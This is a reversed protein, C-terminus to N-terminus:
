RIQEQLLTLIRQATESNDREGQENRIVVRTSEGETLLTVQYQQEKDINKDNDRWFALKALLGEDEVGEMPDNYRVYYVGGSRDRDEVAFGVRDLAIGTLRWARPFEENVTLWVQDGSKILRSRQAPAAGKAALARSATQDEVGLYVMLRRLMAAELGHDTERPNWVTREVDGQGDQIITEQMGRQTLYLETTAPEIGPEIRIRFQDRTSASYLGDFLGRFADTIFDNKIDARNEIWDTVMIGVTPDQEELLIGNEQWFEVVRFWVDEPEGQILLWRQEGDRKVEINEVTPLVEGGGGPGTRGRESTELTSLTTGGEPRTGPIVLEDRISSSTLDPPIELDREVGRSKKYEVKRDPLMGDDGRMSGCGVIMALLAYSVVAQLIKSTFKM